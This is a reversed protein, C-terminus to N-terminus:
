VSKLGLLKAYVSLSERFSPRRRPAGTHRLLVFTADDGDPAGDRYDTLKATLATPLTAPNSADLQNVLSVLGEEGLQMGTRNECETLADTYFLLLDGRGLTIRHQTYATEPVIGLPLDSLDGDATEAPDLVAWRGTDAPRWLPRPHGANCVTLTDGATLYTAVVATAFRNMGSLEAFQRNLAQVLADQDKRNINRRMLDRLSKAVEAVADGHGSVDALIFRTISGGGCLSMYYVDGGGAAAAHPRSSVWIDLGPTAAAKEVARNGGWIEMCQLPMPEVTATM